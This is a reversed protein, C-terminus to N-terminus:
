RACCHSLDDPDHVNARLKCALRPLLRTRETPARWSSIRSNPSRLLARAGATRACCNRSRPARRRNARNRSASCRRIHRSSAIPTRARASASRPRHHRRCRPHRGPDPVRPRDGRRIRGAGRTGARGALGASIAGLLVSARILAGTKQRHMRELASETLLKNSPKWTSPRGAPWAALASPMPSYACCKSARTRPFPRRRTRAASRLRAGAARRGVLIATAEDFARHCTPTGRRLDDNDMAPLDDHVLSYVHILEVAAAAADLLESRRASHKAPPMCWYRGSASAAPWRATACPKSCARRRAAM